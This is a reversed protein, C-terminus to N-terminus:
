MVNRKNISKLVRIFKMKKLIVFLYYRPTFHIKEIFDYGKLYSKNFTLNNNLQNSINRNHIIQLWYYGGDIRIYNADGVWHLHERNYVTLFDNSSQVKEILSIFPGSHVDDRVSLKYEHEVQLTLGKCLDIVTKDEAKFNQQIIKIADKHFCDDNDLRTTILYAKDVDIYEKIRLSM